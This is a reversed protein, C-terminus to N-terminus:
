VRTPSMMLSWLTKRAGKLYLWIPAAVLLENNVSFRKEEIEGWDFKIGKQTLKTMSKAIKLFGEIFRRYYGDLGLFQRIERPTKPSAKSIWFECKSVQAYLKEKKLVNRFNGEINQCRKETSQSYILIDMSSSLYLKDLLAAVSPEHPGLIFAPRKDTGFPMVVRFEYHGYQTRFTTKPIDQERVRLQKYGSRLDKTEVCGVKRAKHPGPEKVGVSITYSERGETEFGTFSPCFGHASTAEFIRPFGSGGMYLQEHPNPIPSEYCDLVRIDEGYSCLFIEMPSKFIKIVKFAKPGQHSLKPLLSTHVGKSTLIGPKFVKEENKSSFSLLIESGLVEKHFPIEYLPPSFDELILSANSISIKKVNKACNTVEFHNEHILIGPNFVKDENDTSTLTDVESFDEYLISDCKPLPLFDSSRPPDLEDILLKSEKIKNGQCDFADDYVNTEPSIMEEGYVDILARVTWLFPRGLILPVRPDSEYDVIVFDALFTFKGVPVFVDRAVKELVLTADLQNLCRSRSPGKCQLKVLVLRILFKGPDGLKEPLKKHIVALCNENLPTNALELLKEKNSILSKLMKQYKLILILADALSINIHLQKFMHWFKHIQIEDNDQQKEQHMRSPYPINPHLPDRKHVVYNKLSTPKAKQVLPPSAKITYEALGPDTLTEEAREDEEPNIFPPPMPVSPGDLVLGSRTTIAKLEGKPNAITNSPLSGSGSSSATNMQFFSAMM